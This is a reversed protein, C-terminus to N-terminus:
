SRSRRWLKVELVVLVVALVVLFIAYSARAATAEHAISLGIFINVAACAVAARGVNHHYWNWYRRVKSSKDPRALFALVQLCGFVLITIGLAQHSDAGPVDDNLKFGAIVGVTGLVFGVGQVSIHAYFWFPDHRKFYRALAIGVPMLVGWGLGALAGHWKKTDFASSGSAGSTTGAVYNVAASSYDRHRVLYNGNLNANSPGVAYILYPTPQAATFQFALYLRSSQAVLLTNGTVLSLSGTDPPCSSASTGGLKYQKAVGVGTGTRWGAVASSGVMNGNSSFGVSVYAGKDPASLVFSWTNGSRSYRVVFGEASWGDFCTLNSTDFPILKGVGASALTTTSSCSDSSQSRAVSSLCCCLSLLLLAGGNICSRSRPKM